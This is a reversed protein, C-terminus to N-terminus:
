SLAAATLRGTRATGRQRKFGISQGYLITMAHNDISVTFPLMASTCIVRLLHRRGPQVTTVFRPPPQACDVLCSGRGNILASDPLPEQRNSNEPSLFERALLVSPTHHWDSSRCCHLAAPFSLASSLSSLAECQSRMGVSSDAMGEEHAGDTQGGLQLITTERGPPGNMPRDVDYRGRHPDAPDLVVLAGRLGDVYQSHYHSHYWYTGALSTVVFDYVFDRGPTIPSRWLHPRLVAPFHPCARAVTRTLTRLVKLREGNVARAPESSNRCQPANVM